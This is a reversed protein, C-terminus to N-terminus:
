GMVARRFLMWTSVFYCGLLIGLICVMIRVQALLTEWGVYATIQASIMEFFYVVIIVSILVATVVPLGFWVALQKIIGVEGAFFVQNLALQFGFRAFVNHAVQGFGANHWRRHDVDAVAQRGLEHVQAFRGFGAAADVFVANGDVVLGGNHGFFKVHVENHGRHVAALVVLQEEGHRQGGVFGNRFEFADANDAM